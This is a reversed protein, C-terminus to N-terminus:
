LHRKGTLAADRCPYTQHCKTINASKIPYYTGNSQTENIAAFIPGGYNDSEYINDQRNDKM